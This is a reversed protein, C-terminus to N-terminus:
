PTVDRHVVGKSHCFNLADALQLMCELKELVTMSHLRQSLCCTCYEMVYGWNGDKCTLGYIHCIYQHIFTAAICEGMLLEKSYDYPFKLAVDGRQYKGKYITAYGGRGIEELASIKDFSIEPIEFKSSSQKDEAQQIRNLVGRIDNDHAQSELKSMLWSLKDNTQRQLEEMKEFNKRLEVMLKENVHCLHNSIKNFIEDPMMNICLTTLILNLDCSLRDFKQHLDKIKELDEGNFVSEIHNHSTSKEIIPKSSECYHHFLSMLHKFKVDNAVTAQDCLIEEFNSSLWLIRLFLVIGEEKVYEINMFRSSINTTVDVIPIECAALVSFVSDYEVIEIIQQFDRFDNKVTELLLNQFDKLQDAM